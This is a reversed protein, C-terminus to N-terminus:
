ESVAVVSLVPLHDSPYQQEFRDDLTAFSEVRVGRSVFLHDIPGGELTGTRRNVKTAEPGTPEVASIQRANRLGASELLDLAPEAHANFDGSVVVPTDPTLTSILRAMAAACRERAVASQPPLHVNLHHFIVDTARDRFRTWVAHAPRALEIGHAPWGPQPVGRADTGTLWAFGTDLVELRDRRFFVPNMTWPLDEALGVGPVAGVFDHDPLMTQLDILQNSLVEQFGVLDPRHRRLLATVRAERATWAYAAGWKPSDYLINYSMVRLTAVAPTDPEQGRLLSAALLVSLLVRYLTRM